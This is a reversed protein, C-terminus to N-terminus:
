GRLEQHRNGRAMRLMHELHRHRAQLLGDASIRQRQDRARLHSGGMGAQHQPHGRHSGAMDEQHRHLDLRHNGGTVELHQLPGLRPDDAMVQLQNSECTGTRLVEDWPRIHIVMATVLHHDMDERLDEEAM